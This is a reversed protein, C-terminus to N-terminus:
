FGGGFFLANAVDAAPKIAVMFGSKSDETASLTSDISTTSGATLWHCRFLHHGFDSSTSSDDIDEWWVTGETPPSCTLGSTNYSVGLHLVTENDETTTVSNITIYVNSATDRNGNVDDVPDSTDLLGGIPIISIKAKYSNPSWGFTYDSPESSGLVKHALHLYPRSGDIVTDDLVWDTPLTIPAFSGELSVVAWLVDAAGAGTPRNCALSTAGSTDATTPTDVLYVGNYGRVAFDYVSSDSLSALTITSTPTDTYDITTSYKTDYDTGTTTYKLSVNQTAIYFYYEVGAVIDVGGDIDIPYNDGAGSSITKESYWLRNLTAGSSYIGFKCTGPNTSFDVLLSALTGSKIATKKILYAQDSNISGALTDLTNGLILKPM